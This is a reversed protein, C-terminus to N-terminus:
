SADKPNVKTDSPVVTGSVKASKEVVAYPDSGKKRFAKAAAEFGAMAGAMQQEVKARKAFANKGAKEATAVMLTTDGLRITGDAAIAAGGPLATLWPQGIDEKTVVKYGLNGASIMKRSDPTGDKRQSRAWRLNVPLTPVTAGDRLGKRVEAVALDRAIRLDSFGPVFTLDRKGFTDSFEPENKLEGFEPAVYTEILQRKM